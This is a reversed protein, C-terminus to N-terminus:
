SEEEDNDEDEDDDESGKPSPWQVSKHLEVAVNILSAQSLLLCAEQDLNRAVWGVLAAQLKCFAVKGAWELLNYVVDLKCDSPARLSPGWAQVMAAEAAQM